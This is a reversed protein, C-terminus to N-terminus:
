DIPSLLGDSDLDAADFEGLVHADYEMRSVRGDGDADLKAFVGEAAIGDLDAPDLYNDGDADLEIFANSVFVRYEDRSIAGDGNIDVIEVHEMTLDLGAAPVALALLAAGALALARSM